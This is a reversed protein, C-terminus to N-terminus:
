DFDDYQRYKKRMVADRRRQARGPRHDNGYKVKSSIHHRKLTVENNDIINDQLYSIDDAINQYSDNDDDDSQADEAAMMDNVAKTMRECFAMSNGKIPFDDEHTKIYGPIDQIHSKPSKQQMIIVGQMFVKYVTFDRAEGNCYKRFITRLEKIDDDTYDSLHKKRSIM